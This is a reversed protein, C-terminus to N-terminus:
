GTIVSMQNAQLATAGDLLCWALQKALRRPYPEAIKTRFIGDANVGQLKQHPAKSRSCLGNHKACRKALGSLDCFAGLFRTRKQWPMGWQCFDTDIVRVARRRTLAQMSKTIWIMSTSPNEITFPIMHILCTWAVSVCFKMTNNGLNIKWTESEHRLLGVPLGMLHEASRLPPPGGPACRARSWSSCIVGMHVAQVWGAAIWGRIAQQLPRKSLDHQEGHRIDICVALRGRLSAYKATHGEGAFLELFFPIMLSRPPGRTAALAAIGRLLGCPAVELIRHRISPPGCFMPPAPRQRTGGKSVPALQHRNGM